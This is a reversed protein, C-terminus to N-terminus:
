LSPVHVPKWLQSPVVAKIQRFVQEIEMGHAWILFLHQYVGHEVMKALVNVFIKATRPMNLKRRCIGIFADLLSWIRSFPLAPLAPYYLHIMKMNERFSSVPFHTANYSTCLERTHSFVSIVETNLFVPNKFQKDIFVTLSYTPFAIWVFYRVVCSISFLKCSCPGSCGSKVCISGGLMWPFLRPFAGIIM